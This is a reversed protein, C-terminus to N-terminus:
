KFYINLNNRFEEFPIAKEWYAEFVAKQARAFNPHDIIVTTISPKLSVRDNLALMTITEDSIALKMPLEKIVRAEEGIKQYNEIVKLLNKIEEPKLGSYEYICKDIINNKRLVETQVEINDELSATYPPKTFVLIEYKTNKQFNNWREKIQGIDALIEIYDIPEINNLNNEHLSILDDELLIAAQKMQEIEIKKKRDVEQEYKLIINQIAIQPKISRYVKQGDKYSESAVGKRILNQLIEYVKSRTITTIKTLEPATFEKKQLLAIYVEAERGTLGIQQLKNILDM